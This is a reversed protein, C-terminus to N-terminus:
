KKVSGPRTLGDRRRGGSNLDYAKQRKKLKAEKAKQKM